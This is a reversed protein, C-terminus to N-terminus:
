AESIQLSSNHRAAALGRERGYRAYASRNVPNHYHWYAKIFLPLHPIWYRTHDPPIVPESIGPTVEAMVIGPGEMTNRSALVKGTADVIQTAGVFHSEMQFGADTGPLLLFKGSLPGCHSAQLVPAGLRRAFEVPAQESMYRNYQEISRLMGETVPWNSPMTWWHTGTMALEVKGIMRRITQHRVLEWCVAAGITGLETEWVGDDSGGVYFANEWMTPLDKDHTPVKGSSEALVYRNYIEGGSEVLMSGGFSGGHKRALRVMMDIAANSEPLVIRYAEESPAIRGTFFEPLGVVDAGKGFAEEAMREAMEINAAVDGMHTEMQVAAVKIPKRTM